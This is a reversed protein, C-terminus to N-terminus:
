TGTSFGSSGATSTCSRSPACCGTARPPIRSTSTSSAARRLAAVLEKSQNPHVRDDLEGHAVFIPVQLHEVRHIPSGAEYEARHDRPHGMMRELDLRGVLDGQAWSTLIDCDGYKTIACAYRHEPDDVM